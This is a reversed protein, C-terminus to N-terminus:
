IKIREIERIEIFNNNGYWCKKNLLLAYHHAKTSWDGLWHIAYSTAQELTEFDCNKWSPDVTYEPYRAPKNNDYVRFM